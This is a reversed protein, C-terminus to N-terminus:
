RAQGEGQGGVNKTAPQNARSISRRPTARRRARWPAVPYVQQAAAAKCVVARVRGLLEHHLQAIRPQSVRLVKAAERQSRGDVYLLRYVTRLAGPLTRLIRQVASVALWDTPEDEDSARDFGSPLPMPRFVPSLAKHESSRRDGGIMGERQVASRLANAIVTRIYSSSRPAVSHTARWVRIRAEQALDRRDLM